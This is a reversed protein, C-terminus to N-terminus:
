LTNLETPLHAWPRMEKLDFVMVINGDWQKLRGPNTAPLRIFKGENSQFSWIAVFVPLSLRSGWGLYGNYARENIMWYDKKKGKWDLLAIVRGNKLIKRDPKDKGGEWLPENRRDEGFPVVELGNEQLLKDGIEAAQDSLEYNDLFKEKTKIVGFDLKRM